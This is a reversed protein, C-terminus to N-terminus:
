QMISTVLKSSLPQRDLMRTISGIEICVIWRVLSTSQRIKGIGLQKEVQFRGGNTM